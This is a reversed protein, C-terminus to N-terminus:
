ELVYSLNLNTFLAKTKGFIVKIYEKLRRMQKPNKKKFLWLYSICVLLCKIKLCKGSSLLNM